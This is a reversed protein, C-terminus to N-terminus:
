LRPGVPRPTKTQRRPPQNLGPGQFYIALRTRITAALDQIARKRADDRATKTAFESSLINYSSVSGVSASSLTVQDARRTLTYSANLSLNARTAFADREVALTSVAETLTVALDYAPGTGPTHATPNLTRSLTSRLIQGVRDPIPQVAIQALHPQVQSTNPGQGYLPQFGCASVAGTGILVALVTTLRKFIHNFLL